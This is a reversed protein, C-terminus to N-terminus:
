GKLRRADFVMSSGSSTPTGFRPLQSRAPSADLELATALYSSRSHARATDGPPAGSHKDVKTIGSTVDSGGLKPVVDDSHTIAVAPYAGTVSVTGLPAGVTLLGATAYRGSQALRAAVIGGQSHGTFTVPDGPKVGALTMAQTVALLSAASAGAILAINSEMDFPESSIGISWEKTGAIYVEYLDTGDPLSFRDVRIPSDGQPIRSVRDAFSAPPRVGQETSTILAVDIRSPEPSELTVLTAALVIPDPELAQEPPAGLATAVALACLREWSEDWMRARAREQDGADVAYHRLALLLLTVDDILGRARMRLATPDGRPAIDIGRTISSAASVMGLQTWTSEAIALGERLIGELALLHEDSM